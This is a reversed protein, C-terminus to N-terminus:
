QYAKTMLSETFGRRMLRLDINDVQGTFNIDARQICAYDRRNNLCSLIFSYDYINVAGDQTNKDQGSIPLDGALLPVKSLNLNHSRGTALWIFKDQKAQAYSKYGSAGVSARILEKVTCNGDAKDDTFCFRMDLHKPGKLMIMYPGSPLDQYVLDQKTQYVESDPQYVFTAQRHVPLNKVNILFVAIEVEKNVDLPHFRNLGEVYPVGDLSIILNLKIEGSSSPTAGSTPRPSAGSTSTPTPTPTAKPTYTSNVDVNKEILYRRQVIDNDSEPNILAFREKEGNPDTLGVYIDYAGTLNANLNFVADQTTTFFHNIPVWTNTPPQIEIEQYHAVTNNKELELFLKYSSTQWKEGIKLPATLPISGENNWTLKLRLNKNELSIIEHEALRIQSAFKRALYENTETQNPIDYSYLCYYSISEQALSAEYTQFYNKGCVDGPNFAGSATSLWPEQGCKTKALSGKCIPDTIESRLGCSNEYSAGLGASKYMVRMGYRDILQNLSTYNAERHAGTGGIMMVSKTPFASLYTQIVENVGRNFAVGLCTWDTDSCGAARAFSTLQDDPVWLHTSGWIGGASPEFYEITDLVGADKFEQNLLSLFKKLKDQYKKGWPAPYLRYQPTNGKWRVFARIIEIQDTSPDDDHANIWQPISNIMDDRGPEEYIMVHIYAKKSKQKLAKLQNILHNTKERDLQNNNLPQFDGWKIIIGGGKIYVEDGAETISHCQFIGQHPNHVIRGQHTQQAEFEFSTEKKVQYSFILVLATLVVLSFILLLKTKKQQVSFM